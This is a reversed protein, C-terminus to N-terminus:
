FWYPIQWAESIDTFEEDEDDDSDDRELQYMKFAKVFNSGNNTVTTTIQFSIGHSSYINDLETAIKDYM